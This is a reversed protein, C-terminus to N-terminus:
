GTSVGGTLASWRAPHVIHVEVDAIPDPDWDAEGFPDPVVAQRVHGVKAEEEFRSPIM